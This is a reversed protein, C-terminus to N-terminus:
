GVFSMHQILRKRINVFHVDSRQPRAVRSDLDNSRCICRVFMGTGFSTFNQTFEVVLLVETLSSLSPTPARTYFRAAYPPRSSATRGKRCIIATVRLTVPVMREAVFVSQRVPLPTFCVFEWFCSFRSSAIFWAVKIRRNGATVFRQRLQAVVDCCGLGPVTGRLGFDQQGYEVPRWPTLVGVSHRPSMGSCNQCHRAGERVARSECEERFDLRRKPLRSISPMVLQPIALDISILFRRM